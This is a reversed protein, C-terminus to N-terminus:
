GEPLPIATRQWTDGGDRSVAAGIGAYGTEVLARDMYAVVLHDPDAPDVAVSPMQQAAADDTIARNVGATTPDIGSLLRREELPEVRARYSAERAARRADRSGWTKAAMAVEGPPAPM